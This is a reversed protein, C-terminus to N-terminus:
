KSEPEGLGDRLGFAYKLTRVDGNVLRRRGQLDTCSGHLANCINVAAADSEEGTFKPRGMEDVENTLFGLSHLSTSM